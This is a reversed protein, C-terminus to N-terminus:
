HFSPLLLDFSKQNNITGDTVEGGGLWMEGEAEIPRMKFSKERCQSHISAVSVNMLDNHTM